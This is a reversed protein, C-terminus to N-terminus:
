SRSNEPYMPPETRRVLMPACDVQDFAGEDAARRSSGRTPQRPDRVLRMRMVAVGKQDAILGVPPARRREIGRSHVAAARHGKGM